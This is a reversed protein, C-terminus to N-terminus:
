KLVVAHTQMYIHKLIEFDEVISQLKSYTHTHTDTHPSVHVRTCRHVERGGKGRGRSGKWGPRPGIRKEVKDRVGVRARIHRRSPPPRPDALAQTM